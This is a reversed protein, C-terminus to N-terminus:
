RRRQLTWYGYRMEPEFHEDLYRAILPAYAAFPVGDVNDLNATVVWRVGAAEVAAILDRQQAGDNERLVETETPVLQGFRTPNRRDALFYVATEAPAVYIPESPTTREDLAGLLGGLDRATTADVRVTGRTTDLPAVLQQWQVAAEGANLGLILAFPVLAGAATWRPWGQGLVVVRLESLLWALFILTIPLLQRLHYYDARFGLTGLALAAFLALPLVRRVTALDGGRLLRAGVVGAAAAVTVLPLYLLLKVYLLYAPPGWVVNAALEDPVLPWPPPLSVHMYRSQHLFTVRLTDDLMAPLAGQAAIITVWPLLVSCAAAILLAARWIAILAPTGPGGYQQAESRPKARPVYPGPEDGAAEDGRTESSNAVYPPRLLAQLIRRWVGAAGDDVSDPATPLPWARRRISGFWRSQLLWDIVLYGLAAGLTYVGIEQGVLYSVGVLLGSAILWRARAMEAYRMLTWMTVLGILTRYSSVGSAIVILAAAVALPRWALRAALGYVVLVLAVHAAFRLAHEIALSTGFVRFLGALLYLWGPTYIFYVDRYPVQGDALREAVHLLLGEDPIDLGRGYFVLGYGLAALLGLTLCTAWGPAALPRLQSAPPPVAAASTCRPVM